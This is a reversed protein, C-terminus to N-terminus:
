PQPPATAARALMRPQPNGVRQGNISEYEYSMRFTSVGAVRVNAVSELATPM